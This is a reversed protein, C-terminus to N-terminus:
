ICLSIINPSDFNQYQFTYSTTMTTRLHISNAFVVALTMKNTIKIDFITNNSNQIYNTM